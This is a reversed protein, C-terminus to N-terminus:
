HDHPPPPPTPLHRTVLSSRGLLGETRRGRQRGAWGRQEGREVQDVARLKGPAFTVCPLDIAAAKQFSTSRDAFVGDILDGNKTMVELVNDVWAKRTAHNSHDFITHNVGSMKGCQGLFVLKGHADHLLHDDSLTTNLHTQPFNIITNQYYMVRTNPNAAKIARAAVVVKEENCCSAPRNDQGGGITVMPFRAMFALATENLPGTANQGHMFVPLTAWSFQPPDAPLLASCICVALSVLHVRLSSVM